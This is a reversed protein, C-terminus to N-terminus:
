AMALEKALDAVQPQVLRAFDAYGIAMTTTHDGAQFVIREDATLTRDVWVPIGYLNGFPPMAGAECDPFASAFAHESALGLEKARLATRAKAFDVMDPARLVLMRLVGDAEVMVVKAVLRGPVHESAAVRQATYAVEHHEIEFPVRNEIFYTELRDKCSM